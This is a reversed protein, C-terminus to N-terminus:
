KRVIPKLPNESASGPKGGAPLICTAYTSDKLSSSDGPYDVLARSDPCPLSWKRAGLLPEVPTPFELAETIQKYLTEQSVKKPDVTSSTM